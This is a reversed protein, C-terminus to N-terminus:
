HLHRASLDAALQDLAPFATRDAPTSETSGRPRAVELELGIAGPKELDRSAALYISYAVPQGTRADNVFTVAPVGGFATERRDQYLEPRDGYRGAPSKTPISVSVVRQHSPEVFKCFDGYVVPQMEPGFIRRVGDLAIACATPADGNRLIAETGDPVPVPAYPKCSNATDTVPFDVCAGAAADDPEDAAITLPQQPAPGAPPQGRLLDMIRGALDLGRECTDVTLSLEVTGNLTGGLGSPGQGWELVCSSGRQGVSVNRDRVPRADIGKGALPDSDYRIRLKPSQPPVRVTDPRLPETECGDLGLNDNGYRLNAAEDGLTATLIQCADWQALPYAAPDVAPTSGDRLVRIASAAFEQARKCSEDNKAARMDSSVTISRTFSVPIDVSCARVDSPMDYDLYAKVGDIVLPKAAYRRGHDFEAGVTVGVEDGAIPDNTLTCTHPGGPLQWWRNGMGTRTGADRDLLRCADLRRLAATVADASRDTPGQAGPTGGGNAAGGPSPNASGGTGTAQGSASSGSSSRDNGSGDCGSTVLVLLAAACVFLADARGIRKVQM